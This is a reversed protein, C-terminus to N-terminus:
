REAFENVGAVYRKTGLRGAEILEKLKERLAAIRGSYNPNITILKEVPDNSRLAARVKTRSARGQHHIDAILACIVDTQGDLGYWGAYIDGMKHQLIQNALEVQLDRMEGSNNSWHIMRASQLVEQQDHERLRANLYNMFLQLQRRGNPGTPMVQELDTLGGNEDQRHLRGDKLILEPFYDHFGEMKALRRFFLILNDDPTHAAMQYFGFTLKASDYTNILNFHNLSECHGSLELLYAWHDIHDVHDEAKYRPGYYENPRMFLGVYDGSSTERGILFEPEDNCRGMWRGDIKRLAFAKGRPVNQPDERINLILDSGPITGFFLSQTGSYIREFTDQFTEPTWKVVMEQSNSYHYISGNLFIGIHKQPINGMTKADIDVNNTRTIFALLPGNTNPRDSWKGVKPCQKFVEQVRINAPQKSGGKYERCNFSFELGLMHSVFHACHNAHHDHFRNPCIDDIQKGLANELLRQIDQTM